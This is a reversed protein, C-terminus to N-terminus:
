GNNASGILFKIQFAIVTALVYGKKRRDLSPADDMTRTTNLEAPIYVTWATYQIYNEEARPILYGKECNTIEM